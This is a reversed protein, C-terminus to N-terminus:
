EGIAREAEKKTWFVTKGLKARDSKTFPRPKAYLTAEGGHKIHKKWYDFCATNDVFYDWYTNPFRNREAYVYIKYCTKGIDEDNLLKVESIATGFYGGENRVIITNGRLEDVYGHIYVEDGIRM